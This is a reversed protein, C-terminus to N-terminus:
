LLTDIDNANGKAPVLVLDLIRDRGITKKLTMVSRKIVNGRKGRIKVEQDPGIKINTKRVTRKSM